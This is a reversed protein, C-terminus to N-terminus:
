HSGTNISPIIRDDLEVMNRRILDSFILHHALPNIKFGNKDCFIKLREYHTESIWFPNPKSFPPSSYLVMFTNEDNQDSEMVSLFDDILDEVYKRHTVGKSKVVTDVSEMVESPCVVQVSKRLTKEVGFVYVDQQTQAIITKLFTKVTTTKDDGDLLVITEMNSFGIAREGNAAYGLSLYRAEVSELDIEKLDGNIDTLQLSSSSMATIQYLHNPTDLHSVIDGECFDMDSEYYFDAKKMTKKFVVSDVSLIYRNKTMLSSFHITKKVREIRTVRMVEGASIHHGDLSLDNNLKVVTTNYRGDIFSQIDTPEVVPIPNIIKITIGVPKVFGHEQLKRQIDKDMSLQKYAEPVALRVKMQTAVLLSHSALQNLLTDIYREKAAATRAKFGKIKETKVTPNNTTMRNEDICTNKAALTSV